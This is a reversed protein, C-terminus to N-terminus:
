RRPPFTIAARRHQLCPLQERIRDQNEFDLTASVFCGREEAEPGPAQALIEGWPDIIMSHGYSTKNGGYPGVQNAAAVFMQNEIARARLLVEWHDRGTLATFAAPVFVVRAGRGSQARFLEPFRLDYCVAFGCVVEAVQGVVPEFGPVISASEAYTTGDPLEVDFLHIKRYRHLLTGKRDFHLVVNAVKEPNAQDRELLGVVVETGEARAYGSFLEAWAADEGKAADEGRAADAKRAFQENRGMFNSCEPLVVVDAHEKKVQRLLSSVTELNESVLNGSNLQIVSVTM